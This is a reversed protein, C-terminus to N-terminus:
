HPVTFNTMPSSEIMKGMESFIKMLMFSILEITPESVLYFLLTLYMYYSRDRDSLGVWAPLKLIQM